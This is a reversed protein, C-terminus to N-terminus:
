RVFVHRRHYGLFKTMPAPPTFQMKAGVLGLALKDGDALKSSCRVAGDNDFTLLGKEFLAGLRGDLVVGNYPEGVRRIDLPYARLAPEVALGTVACAPSFVRAVFAKFKEVFSADSQQYADVVTRCEEATVSMRRAQVLASSDGKRVAAITDYWCVVTDARREITARALEPEAEQMARVLSRRNAEDSYLRYFKQNDRLTLHALEFFQTDSAKALTEGADSLTYDVPANKPTAVLWGLDVAAGVYYSRDRAQPFLGQVQTSTLGYVSLVPKGRFTKPAVPDQVPLAQNLLAKLRFLNNAQLTSM